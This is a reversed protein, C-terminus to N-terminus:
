RRVSGARAMSSARAKSSARIDRLPSGQRDMTVSSRNFARAKSLQVEAQDAREAADDLELQVKRFKTLNLAAIEETEEIQKKYAKVRNQLQNVLEQSRLQSKKEEDVQATLERIKRENKKVEKTTEMHNRQETDLAFELESM